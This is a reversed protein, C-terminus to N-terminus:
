NRLPPISITMRASSVAYIGMFAAPSPGRDNGAYMRDMPKGAYRELALRLYGRVLAGVALALGV